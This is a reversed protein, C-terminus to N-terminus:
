FLNLERLSSIACKLNTWSRTSVIQRPFPTVPHKPQTPEGNQRPQWHSTTHPLPHSHTISPKFHQSIVNRSLLEPSLIFVAMTPHHLPIDDQGAMWTSDLYSLYM